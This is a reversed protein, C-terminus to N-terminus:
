LRLLRFANADTRSFAFFGRQGTPRGNGTSFLHPVLEVSMGARDAIVYRSFDGYILIDSGTTLASSIASSAVLQKGLLHSPAPATLDVTFDAYNSSTGFQRTLNITTNEAAFTANPRFRPPLANAVKYLDALAYASGTTPSVRSATVAGVATVVGKPQSTGNGSVFATAEANDKADGFLKFVENAIGRIDMHLEISIPVFLRLTYVPIVPNTLTPSDDSVETAEADWSASIQGATVGTWSNTITTVTRSISRFPNTSGAGTVIFSPDLTLPVAYLGTAGSGESM